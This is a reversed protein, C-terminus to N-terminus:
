PKPPYEKVERLTEQTTEDVRNLVAVPSEPPPLEDREAQREDQADLQESIRDLQDTTAQTTRQERAELDEAIRATKEALQLATTRLEQLDEARHNLADVIEARHERLETRYTRAEQGFHIVAWVLFGIITFGNVLRVFTVWEYPMLSVVWAMTIIVLMIHLATSMLVKHIM